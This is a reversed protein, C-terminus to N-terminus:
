LETATTKEECREKNDTEDKRGDKLEKKKKDYAYAEALRINRIQYYKM